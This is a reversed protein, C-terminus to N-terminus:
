PSDDGGGACAAEMGSAAGEDGLVVWDTTTDTSGEGIGDVASGGGSGLAVDLGLTGFACGGGVDAGLAVACGVAVVLCGGGGSSAFGNAM